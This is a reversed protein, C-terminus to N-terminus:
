NKSPHVKSNLILLEPTVRLNPVEGTMALWCWEFCYFRSSDSTKIGVFSLLSIWDYPSNKYKEFYMLAISKDLQVDILLWNEPTWEHFNLAHLGRASTSHYLLGDIVIGGHSFQSVLRARIAWCALRQWSTANVPADRRLALQM